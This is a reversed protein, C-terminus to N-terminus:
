ARYSQLRTTRLAATGHTQYLQIWSALEESTLEHRDCADTFTLRGERIEDLLERKKAPTWRATTDMDIKGINPM